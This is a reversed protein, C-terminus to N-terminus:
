RVMAIQAALNFSPPLVEIAYSGIMVSLIPVRDEKLFKQEHLRQLLDTM